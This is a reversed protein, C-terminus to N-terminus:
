EESTTDAICLPETEKIYNCLRQELGNEGEIYTERIEKSERAVHARHIADRMYISLAGKKAKRFKMEVEEFTKRLVQVVAKRFVSLPSTIGSVITKKNKSFNTTLAGDLKKSIEKVMASKDSFIQRLIVFLTSILVALLATFPEPVFIVGSFLIGTCAAIIDKVFEAFSLKTLCSMLDPHDFRGQVLSVPLPPLKPALSSLLANSGCQVKWELALHDYAQKAPFIIQSEVVDNKGIKTNNIWYFMRGSLVEMMTDCMIRNVEVSFANEIPATNPSTGAIKRCLNAFGRCAKKGWEVAKSGLIEFLDVKNAILPAASDKIVPIAAEYVEAYVDAAITSDILLGRNGEFNEDIYKNCFAMFENLKKEACIYDANSEEFSKKADDERRKLLDKLDRILTLSKQSTDTILISRSKSNVVFERIAEVTGDWNCERRIITLGEPSLSDTLDNFEDHGFPYLQSICVSVLKKWCKELSWAVLNSGENLECCKKVLFEEVSTDSWHGNAVFYEGQIYLLALLAHYPQVKADADTNKVSQEIAPLISEIWKSKSVKNDTINASYFMRGHCLNSCERIAELEKAGPLKGGLLYWVASADSLEARTINTDYVNAFLGPADVFSAGIKTMYQSQVRADIKKVFAFVAEEPTFSGPGFQSYRNLHNEPFKAFKDIDECSIDFCEEQLYKQLGPNNFFELIFGAVFFMDREDENLLERNDQWVKFKERWESKAKEISENSDLDVGDFGGSALLQHLEANDRMYITVGVNSSNEVSKALVPAASCKIAGNGMPAICAGGSIANFSTSKGGQFQAVLVIKYFDEYVKKRIAIIEEKSTMLSSMDLKEYEGAVEDLCSIVDQLLASLEDRKENYQTINM